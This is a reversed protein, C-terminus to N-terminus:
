INKQLENLRIKEKYMSQCNVDNFVQTQKNMMEAKNAFM